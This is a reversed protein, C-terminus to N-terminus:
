NTIPNNNYHIKTTGKLPHIAMLALGVENEVKLKGKVSFRTFSLNAKRSGFQNLM